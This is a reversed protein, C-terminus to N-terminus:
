SCAGYASGVTKPSVGSMTWAVVNGPAGDLSIPCDRTDARTVFCITLMALEFEPSAAVWMGTISKPYGLWNLSM